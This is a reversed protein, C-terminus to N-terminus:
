CDPDQWFRDVDCQGDAPDSNMGGGRTIEAEIGGSGVVLAFVVVSVVLAVSGTALGAIAVGKQPRGPERDAKRIGLVGLVIAIVAPIAGLGLCLSGLLGVVGLVLAPVAFTNSPAPAAISGSPNSAGPAFPGPPYSASPPLPAGPPNPVGPPSPPSWAQLPPNAPVPRGWTGGQVPVSPAPPPPPHGGPPQGFAPAPTPPPNPSGGPPEDFVPPSTPPPSTTWPPREPDEAGQSSDNV